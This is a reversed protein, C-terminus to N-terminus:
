ILERGYLKGAISLLSFGRSNSCECKDGKWKLLPVIGAGRRDMTVVVM